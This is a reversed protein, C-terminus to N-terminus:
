IFNWQYNQNDNAAEVKLHYTTNKTEWTKIQQHLHRKLDM